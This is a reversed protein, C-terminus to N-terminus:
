AGTGVIGNRIQTAGICKSAWLIAIAIIPATSLNISIQIRGLYPLRVSFSLPCIVFIASLIFIVLTVISLKTIM